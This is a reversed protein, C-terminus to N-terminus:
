LQKTTQRLAGSAQGLREGLAARSDKAATQLDALLAAHAKAAEDGGGLHEKMEAAQLLTAALPELTPPLAEQLAALAAAVKGAGERLVGRLDNPAAAAPPEDGGGEGGGGGGAGGGKKKKKQAPLMQAWRQQLVCLTPLQLGLLHQASRLAEPAFGEKAVLSAGVAECQAVLASAYADVSAVLGADVEGGAAAAAAAAEPALTSLLTATRAMALIAAWPEDDAAGFLKPTAGVGEAGGGGISLKAFSQALVNPFPSVDCEARLAVEAARLGDADAALARSLLRVLLVRRPLWSYRLAHLGGGRAAPLHAEYVDLDLVNPLTAIAAASSVDLEVVAAAEALAAQVAVANAQEKQVTLLLETLELLRRWWSSELTSQFTAMETAQVYNGSRLALGFADAMDRMGDRRFRRAADLPPEVTEAGCGGGQVLAPLLVYTLTEQQVHKIACANYLRMAAGAAGLRLLGQMLALSLQFNHPSAERAMKLGLLARLLPRLPLGGGEGGSPPPARSTWESAAVGVDVEAALLALRDAHGFERPDLGESLSRHHAYVGLWSRALAAREAAGLSAVGGVGCAGVRWQCACIFTRLWELSPPSPPSAQAACAEAIPGSALLAEGDAAPLAALFPAADLFCCAKTSCRAFYDVLAARLPEAFAAAAAAAAAGGSASASARLQHQLEVAALWPGRIRADKAKLTQLLETAQAEPGAGDGPQAAAAAHRLACRVHGRHADWDDAAHESLLTAWRARADDWRDLSELLGAELSLKEEPEKLLEGHKELLALAAEPAKQRRLVELYLRVEPELALTGQESARKLMAAALQLQKSASAPPGDDSPSPAGAFEAPPDDPVQLLMCTVAWFVYRQQGSASFQKHMKMALGQAKQHERERLYCGFLTHALEENGQEQEWAKQYCATGDERHGTAKFTIMLTNLLTDDAPPKLASAVERCLALAEDPKGSRELTVAKLAKVLPSDGKQLAANCLKLSLKYNRADLADYIPRLKRNAM